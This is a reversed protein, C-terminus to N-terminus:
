TSGLKIRIFKFYALIIKSARNICKGIASASLPEVQEGQGPSHRRDYKASCTLEGIKEFDEKEVGLEKAAEAREKSIIDKKTRLKARLTEEIKYINGAFDLSETDSLASHFYQTLRSLTEDRISLRVIEVCQDFETQYSDSKLNGNKDYSLFRVSCKYKVEGHINLTINAPKGEEQERIIPDVRSASKEKPKHGLHLYGPRSLSYADVLKEAITQIKEGFEENTFTSQEAKAKLRGGHEEVSFVIRDIEFTTREPPDMAWLKPDIEWGDETSITRKTLINEKNM